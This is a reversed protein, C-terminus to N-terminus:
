LVIIKASINAITAFAMITQMLMIRLVIPTARILLAVTTVRVMMTSMTVNRALMKIHAAATTVYAMTIPTASSKAFVGIIM